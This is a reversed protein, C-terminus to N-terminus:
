KLGLEEEFLELLAHGGGGDGSIL